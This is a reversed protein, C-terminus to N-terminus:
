SVSGFVSREPETGFLLTIEINHLDLRDTFLVLVAPSGNDEMGSKHDTILLDKRNIIPTSSDSVVVCLGVFHQPSGAIVTDTYGESTLIASLGRGGVYGVSM